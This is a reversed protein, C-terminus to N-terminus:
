GASGQATPIPADARFLIALGSGADVKVTPPVTFNSSLKSAYQNGVEGLAVMGQQGTSLQPHSVIIGGLGISQQSGSESVAKAWGSVFSAAFLTGYRLLYHSNVDSAMATRATNPDIAVANITISTPLSPISMLTFSLVVKKDVRTFDGLLKTGKYPGTVVTAM